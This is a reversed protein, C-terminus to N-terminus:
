NSSGVPLQMEQKSEMTSQSKLRAERKLNSVRTRGKAFSGDQKTSEDRQFEIITSEEPGIHKGLQLKGPGAGADRLLRQQESEWMHWHWQQGADYMQHTLASPLVYSQQEAEVLQEEPRRKRRHKRLKRREKAVLKPYSQTAAQVQQEDLVNERLHTKLMQIEQPILKSDKEAETESQLTSLHQKMSQGKLIENWLLASNTMQHPLNLQQLPTVICPQRFDVVQSGGHVLFSGKPDVLICEGSEQALHHNRTRAFHKLHTLRIRENLPSANTEAEVFHLGGSTDLPKKKRKEGSPAHTSLGNQMQHVNTNSVPLSEASDALILLHNKTQNAGNELLRQEILTKDEVEERRGRRVRKWPENVNEQVGDYQQQGTVLWQKNQSDWQVESILLQKQATLNEM